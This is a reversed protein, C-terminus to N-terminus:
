SSTAAPVRGRSRLRLSTHTAIRRPTTPSSATPRHLDTSRAAPSGVLPAPRLSTAGRTATLSFKLPVGGGAKMSSAAPFEAAPAAFGAFDYIVSYAHVERAVNGAQDSATVTFTKSGLSGTDLFSGSSVDGKCWSIGSGFPYDDCRFWTEVSDGLRYTGGEPPSSLMIRPPTRDAITYTISQQSVNFQNDVAVVEFTFTGLRSTDVPMGVPKTSFCEFMGLGGPDDECTYDFTLDAGLEYTAGDSPTRFSVHPKTTDIVTYAQTATVRRGDFDTATVSVSHTGAHFTDLKSGHPQTGECSVIASVPSVCLFGFTEDYGQPYYWGDEFSFYIIPDGDAAAAAPVFAALALVALFGAALGRRM